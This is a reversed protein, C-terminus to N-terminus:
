FELDVVIEPRNEYYKLMKKLFVYGHFASKGAIAWIFLCEKSYVYVAISSSRNKRVKNQNWRDNSTKKKRKKSSKLIQFSM